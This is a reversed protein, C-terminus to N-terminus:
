FSPAASGANVLCVQKTAPKFYVDYTGAKAWINSGPQGCTIVTGPTATTSDNQAGYCKDDDWSKNKKIKFGNGEAFTQNKVSWVGGNDTMATDGWSNHDGSLYYVDGAPQEPLAAGTPDAAGAEVVIIAKTTPNFYFDYTGEAPLGMNGGSTGCIAPVGLELVGNATYSTTWTHQYGVKFGDNPLTVATMAVNKRAIYGNNAQINFDYDHSAIDWGQFAGVLSYETTITQEPQEPEGPTAPTGGTLHIGAVAVNGGGFNSGNDTFNADTSFTITSEAVLGSLEITYLDAKTATLAAGVSTGSMNEDAAPNVSAPTATGGNNVRIYLIQNTGSKARAVFTLTANGAVGLAETTYTGTKFAKIGVMVGTANQGNITTYTGENQNHLPGYYTTNTTVTFLEDSIFSYSAPIEDGGVNGGGVAVVKIMLTGPNFYVDYKGDAVLCNGGGKTTQAEVGSELTSASGYDDGWALGAVIKFGDATLDLGTKVLWGSEEAATMITTEDAANWGNFGGVVNYTKSYPDVPAPGEGTKIVKIMKTAPNFYVDYTGAAVSCNDGGNTTLTEVGEELTSGSGYSEDWSLNVCIKFQGDIALGSKVLWGDEAATMITSEDQQNWSNFAGAVNYTKSYPDVPAPGEGVKEFKVVNNENGTVDITVNFTGTEAVMIDSGQYVLKNPDGGLNFGNDTASGGYFPHNWNENVRIKYGGEGLVVEGTFKGDAFTLNTQADWGKETASGIFGLSEVPLFHSKKANFDFAVVYVGAPVAFNGDKDTIGTVGEALTEIGYWYEAGAEDKYYIKCAGYDGPTYSVVGFYYPANVDADKLVRYLIPSKAADGAWSLGNFDGVLNIYEPATPKPPDYTTINIVVRESEISPAEAELSEVAVIYFTVDYATNAVGGNDLLVGNLHEVDAQYSLETEGDALVIGSKVNVPACDNFTLMVTYNPNTNYGFRAPTWTLMDVLVQKVKGDEGVETPETLVVGGQASEAVSLVPAVFDGWIFCKVTIPASAFLENGSDAVVHLAIEVIANEQNELAPYSALLTERLTSKLVTYYLEQSQSLQIEEGGYTAYLTYSLVEGINRAESWTFTLMEEESDETMLISGDYANMVPAVPDTVFVDAPEPECSAFALAGAVLATLYRFIKM